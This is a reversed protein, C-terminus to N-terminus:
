IKFIVNKKKASLLFFQTYTEFDYELADISFSLLLILFLINSRIPWNENEKKSCNKKKKKKYMESTTLRYYPLHFM